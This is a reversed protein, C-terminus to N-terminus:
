TLYSELLVTFVVRGNGVAALYAAFESDNQIPFSAESGHANTVIGDVRRVVITRGAVGGYQTNAIQTIEMLSASSLTTLWM